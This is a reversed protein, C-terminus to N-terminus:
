RREFYKELEELPLRVFPPRGHPCSWPIECRSLDSMLRTMEDLNLPDGAKVAAKCAMMAAVERRFSGLPDKELEEGIEDLLDQVLAAIMVNKLYSPISLVYFVNDGLDQLELGLTALPELWQRVRAAQSPGLELKQPLLLRQSKTEGSELMRCAREYLVREHAAHQDVVVLGGAEQCLLYSKHLQALPVPWDSKVPEATAVSFNSPAQHPAPASPLSSFFSPTSQQSEAPPWAQPATSYPASAPPPGAQPLAYSAMLSAKSLANVIAHRIADLVARENKFRVERKAPHVNVDVDGSELEVFLLAVAHRGHAILSGYAQSLTFGLLKHEVARRNIFLHQGSRNSRHQKPLGAWGSVRVGGESLNLELSEALFSTGLAQGARERLNKVKPFDISVKNDLRLRFSTDPHPLALRILDQQVRGSETSAAKLFKLRAPTNYFLDRVEIETGSATDAAELVSETGGEVKLKWADSSGQERSSVSFKSVSAISPLAEGRFGFSSVSMLQSADSIKSTAHRRVSLKLDDPGMGWGNDSVRILRQGSQELDVDIRTAGADLSNEVLEKVVSSPREVVEGAAIQNSVTSDLIHIKLPM